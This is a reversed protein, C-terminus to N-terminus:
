TAVTYLSPVLEQLPLLTCVTKPVPSALVLTLVVDSPPTGNGVNRVAHLICDAMSATAMTAMYTEVKQQMYKYLYEEKKKKAWQDSVMNVRVADEVDNGGQGFETEAAVALLLLAEAGRGGVVVGRAVAAAAEAPEEAAVLRVVVAAIGVHQRRVGRGVLDALAVGGLLRVNVIAAGIRQAVGIGLVVLSPVIVMTNGRYVARCRGSVLWIAVHGGGSVSRGRRVASRVPIAIARVIHLLLFFFVPGLLAFVTYLALPQPTATAMLQAPTYEAIILM